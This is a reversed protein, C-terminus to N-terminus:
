AKRYTLFIFDWVSTTIGFNITEDHHHALHWLAYRQVPRPWNILDFHHLVHHWAIFWIFGVVVGAFLGLPMVAWFGVFVAPTYWVPFTVYGAPHKHHREHDGHYMFVHLGIRHVWYEMFTFLVFGAISLWVFPLDRCWGSFLVAALAPFIVFDFYFIPPGKLGLARLTKSM